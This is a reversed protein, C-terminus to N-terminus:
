AQTPPAAKLENVAALDKRRQWERIGYVAAAAAPGIALALWNSGEPIHEEWEGASDDIAQQMDVVYQNVPLQGTHLQATKITLTKFTKADLTRSAQLDGTTAVCSSLFLVAALPISSLLKKM